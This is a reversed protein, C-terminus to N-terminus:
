RENKEFEIGKIEFAEIYPNDTIPKTDVPINSQVFRVMKEGNIITDISRFESLLGVLTDNEATFEFEIFNQNKVEFNREAERFSLLLTNTYPSDLKDLHSYLTIKGSYKNNGLYYLKFDYFHSNLTDLINNKFLKVQTYITDNESIYATAETRKNESETEFIRLSYKKEEDGKVEKSSTDNKNSKTGGNNECSLTGLFSILIVFIKKNM